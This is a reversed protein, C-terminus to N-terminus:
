AAVAVTNPECETRKRTPVVMLFFITKYNKYKDNQKTNLINISINQKNTTEAIALM